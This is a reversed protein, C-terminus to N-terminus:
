QWLPDSREGTLYKREIDQRLKRIALGESLIIDAAEGFKVQKALAVLEGSMKLLADMDEHFQEGPAPPPQYGALLMRILQVEPMCANRASTELREAQERSLWFQKKIGNRGM